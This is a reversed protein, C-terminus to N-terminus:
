QPVSLLSQCHHYDVPMIVELVLVTREALSEFNDAAARPMCDSDSAPACQESILCPLIEM